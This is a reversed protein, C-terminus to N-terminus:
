TRRRVRRWETVEEPLAFLDTDSCIESGKMLIERESFFQFGPSQVSARDVNLGYVVSGPPLVHSSDSPFSVFKRFNRTEKM